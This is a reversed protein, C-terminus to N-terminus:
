GYDFAGREQRLEDVPRKTVHRQLEGDQARDEDGEFQQDVPRDPEHGAPDAAPQGPPPSGPLGQISAGSGDHHGERRSERRFPLRPGACSDAGAGQPRQAVGSGNTHAPM